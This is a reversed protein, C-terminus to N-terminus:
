RVTCSYWIHGCVSEVAKAADALAATSSLALAGAVLVASAIKKISPM